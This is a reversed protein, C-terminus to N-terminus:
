GVKTEISLASTRSPVTLFPTLQQILQQTLEKTLRFNKIFTENSFAFADEKPLFRRQPRMAEEEADVLDDFIRQILIVEELDM